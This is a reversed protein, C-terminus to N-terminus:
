FLFVVKLIMQFYRSPKYVYNIVTASVLLLLIQPKLRIKCPKQKTCFGVLHAFRLGLFDDQFGKFFAWVHNDSKIKNDNDSDKDINKNNNYNKILSM